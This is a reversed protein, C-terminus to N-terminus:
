IKTLLYNYNLYAKTISRLLGKDIIDGTREKHIMDLLITQLREKIVPHTVVVQCWLELGLQFVPTKHFQQVFTRDM